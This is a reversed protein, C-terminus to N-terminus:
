RDLPAVPLSVVFSVSWGSADDLYRQGDIVDDQRPLGTALYDFSVEAEVDRLWHVSPLGHFAMVALDLEFDLKPTYPHSSGPREAPSLQGVVDFHGEGWGHTWEEQLVFLNLESELEPQNEDEFPRLATELTLGVWPSATPVGLSIVSEFVLEREERTVENSSVDQLRAPAIAHELTLTPELNLEPSCLVTCPEDSEQASAPASLLAIALVPELPRVLSGM